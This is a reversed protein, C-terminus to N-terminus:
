GFCEQGFLNMQLLDERLKLYGEHKRVDFPLFHRLFWSMKLPYMGHM